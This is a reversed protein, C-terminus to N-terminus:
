LRGMQDYLLFTGIKMSWSKVFRLIYIEMTSANKSVTRSTYCSVTSFNRKLIM